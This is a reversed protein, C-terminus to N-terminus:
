PKAQSFISVAKKLIDREQKVLELEKRLRRLESMEAVRGNAQAAAQQQLAKKWQYLMGKAIGLDREIASASQESSEWLQLAELKFAETYRKRVKSM